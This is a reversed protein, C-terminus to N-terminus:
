VGVVYFAYVGVVRGDFEVQWRYARGADLPLGSPFHATLVHTLPLGDGPVDIGPPLHPTFRVPQTVRVEASEGSLSSTTAHAGDRGALVLEVIVPDPPVDAVTLSVWVAFPPSVRTRPAVPLVRIGAGVLTAKGSPDIGVFNALTMSVDVGDRITRTSPDM